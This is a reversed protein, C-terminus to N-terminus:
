NKDCDVLESSPQENIRALTANVREEAPSAPKVVLPWLDVGKRLQSVAGVQTKGVATTQPFCNRGLSHLLVTAVVGALWFRPIMRMRYM